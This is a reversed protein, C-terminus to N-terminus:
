LQLKSPQVCVGRERELQKFHGQIIKVTSDTDYVSYWGKPEHPPDGLWVMNFQNPEDTSRGIGGYAWFGDGAYIPLQEIQQFLTAYYEDKHQTPTSPLYKYARDTPNRWGDRAMGFEELIIPKNIEQSWQGRTRIFEIAFEKAHDLSIHTPENPDYQGWNEVWCHCTCYDVYANDHAHNFDAQDEKSEIGASVLQYPAGEKIFRATEQYWWPPGLQPENAIQWSMIVPDQHYIKQNFTNVRTQITRIHDYFLTKVQERITPDDYFRQCFKVFPDFEKTPYPIAEQTIWAVYQGFGGSWQWFNNLTMVATMNRQGMQDLLYDLGEFIAQNYIGPSPQLSPRMRYPQDDPGESSAMVRLNNVGMAKMQDLEQCLRARDGGNEESAGLNM